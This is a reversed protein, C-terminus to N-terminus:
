SASGGGGDDGRRRGRGGVSASALGSALLFEGGSVAPGPEDAENGNIMERGYANKLKFM